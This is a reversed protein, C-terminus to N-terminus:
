ELEFYSEKGLHQAYTAVLLGLPGTGLMPLWGDVSGRFCWREAEFLRSEPDVLTFRLLKAYRLPPIMGLEARIGIKAGLGRYYMDLLRQDGEAYYLVISDKELDVLVSGSTTANRAEKLVTDREEATILTKIPKRLSVRASGPSEYIEYGEPVQTLANAGNTRSFYYKPKGTKTQGQLLFYTERKRNTHTVVM